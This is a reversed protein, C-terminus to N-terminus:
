KIVKYRNPLKNKLNQAEALTDFKCYKNVGGTTCWEDGDIGYFTTIPIRGARVGFKGDAFQVIQPDLGLFKKLKSLM